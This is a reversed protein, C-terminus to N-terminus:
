KIYKLLYFLYRSDIYTTDPKIVAVSKQFSTKNVLNNNNVFISKGITDGTNAYITDGNELNTRSYNEKFDKLTIERANEYNIDYETLDKVSIFYVGSGDENKCDGHKGDFISKTIEGLKVKM